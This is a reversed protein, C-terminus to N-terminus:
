DLKELSGGDGDERKMGWIEMDVEDMAAVISVLFLSFRNSSLELTLYRDCNVWADL